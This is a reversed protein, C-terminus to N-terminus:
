PCFQKDRAMIVEKRCKARRNADRVRSAYSSAMLGNNYIAGVSSARFSPQLLLYFRDNRHRMYGM